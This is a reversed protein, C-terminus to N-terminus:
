SVEQSLSSLFRRIEPYKRLYPPSLLPVEKDFMEMMWLAMLHEREGGWRSRVESLIM